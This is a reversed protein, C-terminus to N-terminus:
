IMVAYLTVATATLGVFKLMFSGKFYRKMM